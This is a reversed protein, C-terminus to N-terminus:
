SNPESQPNGIITDILVAAAKAPEPQCAPDEALYAKARLGSRMPGPEFCRVRIATSELEQQLIDALSRVAAKSVGYPGWFASHSRAPDDSVFTVSATGAERLVPLCATTLAWAANVNVHIATIWEEPSVQDVPMLGSFHAACHVLHNLGGFEDRLIRAVQEFSDPGAAALDLPCIGPQRWGEASIIDSLRDLDASNRDLLLLEAGTRAAALALASGLGGAAGTILFVPENM